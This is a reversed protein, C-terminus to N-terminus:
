HLASVGSAEDVQHTKEEPLVRTNPLKEAQDSLVLNNREVGSLAWNILSFSSM